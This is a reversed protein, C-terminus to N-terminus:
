NRLWLLGVSQRPSLDNPNSHSLYGYELTLAGIQLAFGGGIAAEWSGANPDTLSVGARATLTHLVVTESSISLRKSETSIARYDIYIRPSLIAGDSLLLGISCVTVTKQPVNKTEGQGWEYRVPSGVGSVGVLIRMRKFPEVVVSGSFGTASARTDFVESEVRQLGLGFSTRLATVRRGIGVNFERDVIRLGGDPFSPDDVLNVMQRWTGALSV